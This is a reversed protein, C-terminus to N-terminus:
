DCRSMYCSPPNEGGTCQAVGMKKPEKVHLIPRQAGEAEGIAAESIRGVFNIIYLSFDGLKVRKREM